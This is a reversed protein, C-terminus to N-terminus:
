RSSLPHVTLLVPYAACAVESTLTLLPLESDLDTCSPTLEVDVRYRRSSLVIPGCHFNM